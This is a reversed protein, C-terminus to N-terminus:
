SGGAKSATAKLADGVAKKMDKDPAAAKVGGPPSFPEGEADAKAATEYAIGFGAVGSFFVLRLVPTATDAPDFQSLALVKSPLVVTGDDRIRRVTVVRDGLGSGLTVPEFHGAGGRFAFVTTNGLANTVRVEVRETSANVVQLFQAEAKKAPEAGRSVPAVAAAIVAALVVGVHGPGYVSRM